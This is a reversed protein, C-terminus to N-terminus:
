LSVGQPNDIPSIGNEVIFMIDLDLKVILADPGQSHSKDAKKIRCSVLKDTVVPQNRDSYQAVVDFEREMFGPGLDTIFENYEQLFMTMSGEPKYDGRTRGGRQALTGRVDGPELSVSYAIEKIGRYLKGGVRIEISSWSYRNGNILPFSAM